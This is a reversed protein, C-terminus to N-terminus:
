CPSSITKLMEEIKSLRADITELNMKSVTEIYNTLHQALGHISQEECYLLYATTTLGLAAAAANIANRRDLTCNLNITFKPELASPRPKRQLKKKAPKAPTPADSSPM